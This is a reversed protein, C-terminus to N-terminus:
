FSASVGVYPGDAITNDRNGDKGEPESLSLRSRHESSAYDDLERRRQSGSLESHRQLTFGPFLLIRRVSPLQRWNEVAPRRRRRRTAKM